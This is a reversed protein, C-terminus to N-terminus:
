LGLVPDSRAGEGAAGGPGAPAGPPPALRIGASHVTHLLPLDFPKDIVKRLNYLHSRLTDTDPPTDQWIEREIERRSVVRPSERMLIELLKLQVPPLTLRHGARQLVLTSTDLTLDAVQLLRPAVQRRRRRILAQLRARLEQAHFPKVLYDDAGADLGALKDELEGHGTLMLVPVYPGDNERLRRCLELGGLGPLSLDLAIADYHNDGCALSLGTPGDAAYDVTYGCGGLYDSIAAAVQRDDEVLLVLGGDHEFTGNM